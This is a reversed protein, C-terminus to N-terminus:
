RAAEAVLERTVWEGVFEALQEVTLDIRGTRQFHSFHSVAGLVGLALLRPPRDDPVLGIAQAEEILRTTDAAYVDSSERLSPVIAEEDREVELLAFFAMNEAMFRVSAAAGQRIRTV